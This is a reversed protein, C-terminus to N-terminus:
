LVKGQQAQAYDIGVSQAHRESMAVVSAGTDVLFNVPSSNITGRVRYQGLPDRNLRVSAHEPEMFSAAVRSSLNLDFVQGRFEVKAGYPDASLLTLGDKTQGVKFMTEGSASRIVARDKFLALVEVPANALVLPSTVGLGLFGLLVFADVFTDASTNLNGWEPRNAANVGLVHDPCALYHFGLGEAAQAMAKVDIPDGGTDAIPLAFGLQM